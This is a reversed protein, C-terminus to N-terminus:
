KPVPSIMVDLAAADSGAIQLLYRGPKLDFDVMKRIGSCAPGHSHAVSPLSKGDRVVDVWASGGLAVRYRGAKTAFFGLLGGNAGGQPLKAPPVAYNVQAVPFLGTLARSGTPILAKTTDRPRLVSAIQITRSWGSMGAPPAAPGPCAVSNNVAVPAGQALVLLLPLLSSPM